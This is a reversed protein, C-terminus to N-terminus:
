LTRAAFICNGHTMPPFETTSTRTRATSLSLDAGYKNILRPLVKKVADLGIDAVVDGLCIFKM